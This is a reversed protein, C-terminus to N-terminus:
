GIENRTVDRRSPIARCHWSSQNQDAGDQHNDSTHQDKEQNPPSLRRLWRTETLQEGFCGVENWIRGSAFRAPNGEAGLRALRPQVLRM